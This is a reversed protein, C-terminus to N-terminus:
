VNPTKFWGADLDRLMGGIMRVRYLVGSQSRSPIVDLVEVSSPLHNRKQGESKNWDPRPTLMDGVKAWNDPRGIREADRSADQTSYWVM